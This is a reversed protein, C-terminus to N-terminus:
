LDESSITITELVIADLLISRPPKELRPLEAEPIETLPRSTRVIAFPRIGEPRVRRLGEAFGATKLAEFADSNATVFSADPKLSFGLTFDDIPRAQSRLGVTRKGWNMYPGPDTYAPLGDFHKDDPAFTQVVAFKELALEADQQRVAEMNRRIQRLANRFEQTTRRMGAKENKRHNKRVIDTFEEVTVLPLFVSDSIFEADRGEEANLERMRDLYEFFTESDKASPAPQTLIYRGIQASLVEYEERESEVNRQYGYDYGNNRSRLLPGAM